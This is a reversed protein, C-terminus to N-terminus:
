GLEFTTVGFVRHLRSLYLKKTYMRVTEFVARMGYREALSIAATNVEPVDLYVPAGAAKDALANFLGEAAEESDAFLPGIKYGNRCLRIVGYGVITAGEFFCYAASKPQTVWRKLFRQRPVPFIQSDYSLLDNFSTKDLGLVLESRKGKVIGGYRVNKYALRFGSREYNDQQALVGDLGINRDGLYDMAANWLRIGFGKGRYEPKVIYLGIFGFTDDYAVASISGVSVGSLEGIFFGNPDTDYFCEGDNIGPNWGEDAAWGIALDVDARNMRRIRYHGASVAPPRDEM